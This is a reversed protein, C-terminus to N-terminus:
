HRCFYHHNDARLGGGEYDGYNPHRAMLGQGGELKLSQLLRPLFALLTIGSSQCSLLVVVIKSGCSSIMFMIM